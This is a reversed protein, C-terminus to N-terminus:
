LHNIFGKFDKIRKVQKDAFLTINDRHERLIFPVNNNISANYDSLADGIFVCEEPALGNTELLHRVWHDKNQPSGYIGQFFPTLGRKDAIFKMEETPTGTIIYFNFRTHYKSLFLQIEEVYPAKIVGEVVLESFEEALQQVKKETIVENLYEKHYYRFKEFRSMGGNALHHQVVKNAIEKGYPEYINYFAKSKVDLSEAIVGDFDFFITKVEM